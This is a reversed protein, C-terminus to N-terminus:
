GITPIPFELHQIAEVISFIFETNTCKYPHGFIEIRTEDDCMMSDIAHRICREIRSPTTNFEKALEPYLRKTIFGMYSKPDMYVNKIAYRLYTYGKFRHSIGLHILYYSITRDILLERKQEESLKFETVM